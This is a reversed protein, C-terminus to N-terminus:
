IKCFLSTIFIPRESITKYKFDQNEEKNDEMENIM